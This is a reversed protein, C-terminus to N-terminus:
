ETLTFQIVDGFNMDRLMNRRSEEKVFSYTEITGVSSMVAEYYYLFKGDKELKKLDDLEITRDQDTIVGICHITKIQKPLSDKIRVSPNVMRMENRQFLSALSPISSEQAVIDQGKLPEVVKTIEAMKNRRLTGDLGYVALLKHETQTEPINVSEYDGNWNFAAIPVTREVKNDYCYYNCSRRWTTSHLKFEYLFGVLEHNDNYFKILYNVCEKSEQISRPALYERVKEAKEEVFDEALINNLYCQYPIYNKRKSGIRYSRTGDSHNIYGSEGNEYDERNEFTNSFDPEKNVEVNFNVHVSTETVEWIFSLTEFIVPHGKFGVIRKESKICGTIKDCFQKKTLRDNDVQDIVGQINRRLVERSYTARLGCFEHREIICDNIRYGVPIFKMAELVDKTCIGAVDCEAPNFLPRLKEAHAEIFKVYEPEYKLLEDVSKLSDTSDSANTNSKLSDTSDKQNTGSKGEIFQKNVGVHQCAELINQINEKTRPEKLMLTICYEHYSLTSPQEGSSSGATVTSLAM